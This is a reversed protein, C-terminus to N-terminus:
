HSILSPNYYSKTIIQPYKLPIYLWGLNLCLWRLVYCYKIKCFGRAMLFISIVSWFIIKVLLILNLCCFNVNLWSVHPNLCCLDRPLWWCDFTSIWGDLLSSGVIFSSNTQINIPIYKPKYAAFNFKYLMNSATFALSNQPIMTLWRLFGIILSWFLLFPIWALPFMTM